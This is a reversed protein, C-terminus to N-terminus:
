TGAETKNEYEFEKLTAMLGVKAGEYAGPYRVQYAEIAKIQFEIAHKQCFPGAYGNHWFDQGRSDHADPADENHEEYTVMGRCRFTTM